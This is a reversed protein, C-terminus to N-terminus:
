KNKFYRLIVCGLLKQKEIKFYNNNQEPCPRRNARSRPGSRSWASRSRRLGCGRCRPVWAARSSRFGICILWTYSRLFLYGIKKMLDKEAGWKKWWINIHTLMKLTEKVSIAFKPNNQFLIVKKAENILLFIWWAILHWLRSISKHLNFILNNISNVFIYKM